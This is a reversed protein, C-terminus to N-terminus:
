KQVAVIADMEACLCEHAKTCQRLAVRQDRLKALLLTCLASARFHRHRGRDWVRGPGAHGHGGAIRGPGGRPPPRAVALSKLAPFWSLALPACVDRKKAAMPMATGMRKAPTLTKRVAGVSLAVLRPLAAALM